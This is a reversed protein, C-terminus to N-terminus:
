RVNVGPITRVLEELWRQDEEDFANLDSSDVDLVGIV